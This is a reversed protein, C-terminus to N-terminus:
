LNVHYVPKGYTLTSVVNQAVKRQLEKGAAESCWGIHPTLTVKKNYLLSSQAFDETAIVDLGAFGVKGSDLAEVLAKEEIVPGRATNVIVVGDKMKSLATRDIMSRTADNLPVHVSIVDAASIADDFEMFEVNSYADKEKFYPDYVVIKGFFREMKWMVDRAINGFGLLCLIADETRQLPRIKQMDFSGAMLMDRSISIKRLANMIHAIATNAVESICYDPVNAVYIGRQTAAAVDINDVGIAYRAIVKCKEMQEILDKDIKAFQVIVADADKIYESLREADKIGGPEVKTLDLLEYELGMSAFVAKEQEIDAYYYDTIVIKIM